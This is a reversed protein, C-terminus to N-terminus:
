PEIRNQEDQTQIYHLLKKMESVDNASLYRRRGGIASELFERVTGIDDYPRYDPDAGQKLLYIAIDYHRFVIAAHLPQFNQRGFADIDAGNAILYKVVKMHGRQVAASLPTGSASWANGELILGSSNINAGYQLMLKVFKLCEDDSFSLKGCAYRLPTDPHNPETAKEHAVINPNAGNQLMAELAKYKKNAIAQFIVAQHYKPEKYDGSEPHGSLISAIAEADERRVATALAECPTGRFLRYDVPSVSDKSIPGDNFYWVMGYIILCLAVFPLASVIWKRYRAYLFVSLACIGVLLLSDSNVGIFIGLQALINANPDDFAFASIYFVVPAALIPLLTIVCLIKLAIPYCKLAMKMSIRNGKHYPSNSRIM